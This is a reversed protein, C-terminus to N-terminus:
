RPFSIFVRICDILHHWKWHGKTVKVSKAFNWPARAAQGCYSLKKKVVAVAIVVASMEIKIALHRSTRCAIPVSGRPFLWHMTRYRGGWLSISVDSWGVDNVAQRYVRSLLLCSFVSRYEAVVQYCWFYTLFGFFVLFFCFCFIRILLEATASLGRSAEHWQINQQTV